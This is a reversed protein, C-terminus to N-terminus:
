LYRKFAQRAAMVRAVRRKEMEAVTAPYHYFRFRRGNSLEVKRGLAACRGCFTHGKLDGVTPMHGISQRITAMDIVWAETQTLKATCPKGPHPEGHCVFPKTAMTAIQQTQEM